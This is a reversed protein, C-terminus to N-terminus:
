TNRRGRNIANYAEAMMQSQSQRAGRIDPTSFNMNVVHTDGSSAKRTTGSVPSSYKSYGNSISALSPGTVLGGTAFAPIKGANLSNIFGGGVMSVANANLIGEGPSARILLNDSTSTGPGSLIGGTAFGGLGDGAFIEGTIGELGSGSGTFLGGTDSSGGGLGFLSSLGSSLQAAAAQAQIKIIGDLVSNIFGKVIEETKDSSKDNVIIIRDVFDPMTEIVIGIQNEENFAPIVVAITKNNLM